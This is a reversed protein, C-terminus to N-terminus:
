NEKYSSVDWTGSGTYRLAVASGDLVGGTAIAVTGDPWEIWVATDAAIAAESSNTYEILGASVVVTYPGSGTFLLADSVGGDGTAHYEM